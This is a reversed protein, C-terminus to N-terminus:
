KIRIIRGELPKLANLEPKSATSFAVEGDITEVKQPRESFNLLVLFKDSGLERYYALINATCNGEDISLTGEKLAPNENRFQILRQYFNMLSNADESEVEVNKDKFNENVPLWPKGSTFGANATTDWQMPTRCEDRNLSQGTWNVMFQPISKYRQALPDLGTKLPLTPKEIGLEEGYYTFPIGRVTFQLLAMLKAKRVDNGLPTISRRRDHNSFVYTPVFPEPFNEEFHAITKRWKKAKFPTSLTQFLFITHLGNKGEYSCFKKTTEVDGFVEGVMFREPNQFSDVLARLETAFRFSGEQNVNYKMKQFFGDPSEESPVIKLSAPNKTFSTDEYISNFIDLRFGDVGKSLWFRAVDLMANKVELNSYNLDPQFELFSAWYFQKRGEHWHWGSGGITAKWNNPPKRGDKGRGDKWVYWDAKPNDKSSASEKFWDHEESTHNMVLDFVVKMDRAHIEDILKLCTEMDGYEPAISRYDSIDYGFDRQPSKFFPSIWITEFGLDKVHDLKQMIGKLDGLGDGDTDYFSRPYIQYVTTSKWSVSGNNQAFGSYWSCTFLWLTPLFQKM